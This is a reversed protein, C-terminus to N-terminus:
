HSSKPVQWPQVYGTSDSCATCELVRTSCVCDAAGGGSWIATCGVGGRRRRLHQALQTAPHEVSSRGTRTTVAPAPNSRCTSNAVSRFSAFSYPCSSSCTWVSTVWGGRLSSSPASPVLGPPWSAPAFSPALPRPLLLPPAPLLPQSRPLLRLAPLPCPLSPEGAAIRDDASAPRAGASCSM